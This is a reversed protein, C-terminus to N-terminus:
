LFLGALLGAGAGYPAYSAGALSALGAGSAAGGISTLLRNTPATTGTTDATGGYNGQILSMYNNLQQQGINQNYNYRNMQDTLQQQSLSEQQAGVQALQSADTYDQNAAQPALADARLQNTQAGQLANLDLNQSAGYNAAGLQQNQSYLGAQLAQQTNNQNFYQNAFVDGLAQTKAADALGSHMRGSAEFQSDVMPNIKDSAAQMVNNFQQDFQPQNYNFQTNLTGGATPDYSSGQPLYNGNLTNQLNSNSASMVPSGNIARNSIMSLAQNTQPSFPVVTSGPFYSPNHNLVNNQADQFGALLYPKQQDWPETKTTQTGTSSGGGSSGGGGVVGGM